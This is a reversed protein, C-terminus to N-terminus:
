SHFHRTSLKLIELQWVQNGRETVAAPRVLELIVSSRETECVSKLERLFDACRKLIIDEYQMVCGLPLTLNRDAPYDLLLGV